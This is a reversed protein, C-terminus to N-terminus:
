KTNPQFQCAGVMAAIKLIQLIQISKFHVERDPRLDKKLGQQLFDPSFIQTDMDIRHRSFTKACYQQANSNCQFRKCLLILFFFFLSINSGVGNYFHVQSVLNELLCFNRNELFSAIKILMIHRWNCCKNPKFYPKYTYSYLEVQTFM